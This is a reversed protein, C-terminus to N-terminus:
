IYTYIYRFLYICSYAYEHQIYKSRPVTRGAPVRTEFMYTNLAHAHVVAYVVLVYMDTPELAALSMSVVVLSNYADCKCIWHLQLCLAYMPIIVISSNYGDHKCNPQLQLCQSSLELPITLLMGVVGICNCANRRCSWHRQLCSAESELPTTIMTSVRGM